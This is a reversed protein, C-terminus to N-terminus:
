APARRPRVEGVGRAARDVVVVAEHEVRPERVVHEDRARQDTGLAGSDDVVHDEVLGRARLCPSRSPEVRRAATVAPRAEAAGIQRDVQRLRPRHVPEALRGPDGGPDRPVRRVRERRSGADQEVGVRQDDHLHVVVQDLRHGGIARLRPETNPRRRRPQNRQLRLEEGRRDLQRARAPVGAGAARASPRDRVLHRVVADLVREDRVGQQPQAVLGEGVVRGVDARWRSRSWSCRGTRAFSVIKPTAPWMCRRPRSM